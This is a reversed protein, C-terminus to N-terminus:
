HTVVGERTDKTEARDQGEWIVLATGYGPCPSILHGLGSPSLSLPQYGDSRSTPAGSGRLSVVVWLEEKHSSGPATTLAPGPNQLGPHPDVDEGQDTLTESGCGHLPM